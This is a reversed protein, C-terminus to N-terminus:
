NQSVLTRKKEGITPIQHLSRYNSPCRELSYNGCESFALKEGVEFKMWDNKIGFHRKVFDQLEILDDSKWCEIKTFFIYM